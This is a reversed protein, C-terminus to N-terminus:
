NELNDKKEKVKKLFINALDSKDKDDYESFEKPSLESLAKQSADLILSIKSLGLNKSLQVELLKNEAADPNQTLSTSYLNLLRISSEDVLSTSLEFWDGTVLQDIRTGLPIDIPTATIDRSEQEKRIVFIENPRAGTLCLPQHTSTV